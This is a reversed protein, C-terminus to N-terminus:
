KIKDLDLELEFPGVSAYGITISNLELKDGIPNKSTMINRYNGEYYDGSSSYVNGQLGMDIVQLKSSSENLFNYQLEVKKDSLREISVIKYKFGNFEEIRNLINKGEKPVDLEIKFDEAEFNNGIRYTVSPLTLKLKSGKLKKLNFLSENEYSLHSSSNHGFEKNGYEDFIEFYPLQIGNERLEFGRKKNEEEDKFTVLNFSPAISYHNLSDTVYYAIKLIDGERKVSTINLTTKGNTATYLNRAETVEAFDSNKLTFSAKQNMVSLTYKSAKKVKGTYEAKYTTINDSDNSSSDNVKLKYINGKDDKISYSSDYYNEKSKLTITVVIKSDDIYMSNLTVNNDTISNKLALGKDSMIIEGIGPIVALKSLMKAFVDNQTLPISAIVTFAIAAAITWKKRKSSKSKVKGMIDTTLKRKEIDTLEHKSLEEDTIIIDNLLMLAEDENICSNM